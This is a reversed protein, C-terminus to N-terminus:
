FKRGGGGHTVGSSSVHTSSGGGGISGGFSHGSSSTRQEVQILRSSVNSYLYTDRNVLMQMRDDQSYEQAYRRTHVTKLQHKAANVPILGVLFGLVPALGFSILFRKHRAQAAAEKEEAYEKMIEGSGRCFTRCATTFENRDVYNLVNGYLNMLRSDTCADNADGYSTIYLDRNKMPLLMVMADPYDSRFHQRYYTDAYDSASAGELGPVLVMIVKTGYKEYVENSLGTLEEADTAPVLGAETQVTEVLADEASSLMSRCDECFTKFTSYYDGGVAADYVDDLILDINRDTFVEIADGSTSIYLDRETLSILFLVGNEYGSFFFHSDYYDDAFTEATKGGTTDVLLMVAKIGYANYIEDSLATLSEIQSETLYGTDDFVVPEPDDAFASFPLLLGAFLLIALLVSYIRKMM